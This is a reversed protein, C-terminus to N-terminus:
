RAADAAQAHHLSKDMFTRARRAHGAAVAQWRAKDADSGSTQALYGAAVALRSYQAAMDRYRVALNRRMVAPSLTRPQEVQANLGEAQDVLVAAEAMARRADDIAPRAQRMSENARSAARQEPTQCGAMVWLALVAAGAAIVRQTMLITKQAIGPAIPSKAQGSQHMKGTRDM